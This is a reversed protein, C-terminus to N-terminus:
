RCRSNNIDEYEKEKRYKIIRAPVGGVIAYPPVDNTVVAGAAIVAGNHITIDGKSTLIIVRAGIWVDDEITCTNHYTGQLNIPIDTREIFHNDPNIIVERAMLVNNGIITKEGVVCKEGIGSNDGIILDRPFTANRRASTTIGCSTISNKFVLRKLKLLGKFDPLCGLSKYLLYFIRKKM